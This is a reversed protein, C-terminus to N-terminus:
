LARPRSARGTVRSQSPFRGLNPGIALDLPTWDVTWVPDRFEIENVPESTVQASSLAVRPRSGLASGPALVPTPPLVGGRPMGPIPRFAIFGTVHIQMLSHRLSCWPNDRARRAPLPAPESAIVGSHMRKPRVVHATRITRLFLGKKARWGRPWVYTRIKPAQPITSGAWAWSTRLVFPFREPPHQALALGQSHGAAPSLRAM